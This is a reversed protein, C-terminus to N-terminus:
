VGCASLRACVSQYRSPHHVSMSDWGACNHSASAFLSAQRRWPRELLTRAYSGQAYSGQVRRRAVLWPPPPLLGHRRYKAHRSVVQSLVSLAYPPYCGHQATPGAGSWWREREGSWWREGDQVSAGGGPRKNGPYWAGVPEAILVRGRICTQTCTDARM